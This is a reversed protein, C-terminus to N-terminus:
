NFIEEDEIVSAVNHLVLQGYISSRIKSGASVMTHGNFKKVLVYTIIRYTM